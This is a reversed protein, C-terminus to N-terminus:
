RKSFGHEVRYRVLAFVLQDVATLVTNAAPDSTAGGLAAQHEDRRLQSELMDLTDETAHLVLAM